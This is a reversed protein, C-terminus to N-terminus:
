MPSQLLSAVNNGTLYSSPKKYGLLRFEEYDGIYFDSIKYLMLQSTETASVYYTEPSTLVPNKDWLVAIKLRSLKKV